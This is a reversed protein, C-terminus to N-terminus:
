LQNPHKLKKPARQVGEPSTTEVPTTTTLEPQTPKTTNFKNPLDLLSSLFAVGQEATQYVGLLFTEADFGNNEDANNEETTNEETTEEPPDEMEMGGTTSKFCGIPFELQSEGLLKPTLELCGRLGDATPALDSFKACVQAFKGFVELCIPEPNAGQIKSSHILNKGYSVNVSFGEEPSVYKMHVCGPGGLDVFTINFDVCCVCAPGKCLCNRNPQEQRLEPVAILKKSDDFDLYDLISAANAVALAVLLLSLTLKVSM